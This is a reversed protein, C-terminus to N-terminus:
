PFRLNMVTRVYDRWEVRDETLDIWDRADCGVKRLNMKINDEWRYTEAERFTEKRWTRESFELHM